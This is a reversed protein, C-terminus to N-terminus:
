LKSFMRPMPISHLSEGCNNHAMTQVICPIGHTSRCVTRVLIETRDGQLRRATPRPPIFWWEGNVESPNTHTTNDVNYIYIYIYINYTVITRVPVTSENRSSSTTAATRVYHFIGNAKRKKPSACSSSFSLTTTTSTSHSLLPRRPRQHSMRKATVFYYQRVVNDNNDDDDDDDHSHISDGNRWSYSWPLFLLLLLSHHM